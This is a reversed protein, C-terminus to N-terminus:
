LLGLKAACGPWAGWGQMSRLEEARAIQESPSAHHPYGTGGVARWSSLSFQLGGYYGNGTNAQWNGGSECLALDTWVSDGSYTSDTATTTEAVGSNSADSSTTSSQVSRTYALEAALEAAMDKQTALKTQTRVLKTALRTSRSAAEKLALRQKVVQRKAKATQQEQYEIARPNAYTTEVREPEPAPRDMVALTIGVAFLIVGVFVVVAQKLSM